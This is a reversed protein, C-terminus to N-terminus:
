GQREAVRVDFLEAEVSTKGRWTNFKPEIAVDLNMGPAIADAMGGAKWWVCRMVKRRGECDQRLRLSLHRGQGGIQRPAEELTAGVIRITPRRNGRGFPSMTAIQTVADHDLEELRADCDIRISPVLQDVEIRANAHERLKATFADLNAAPM